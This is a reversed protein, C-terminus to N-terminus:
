CSWGFSLVCTDVGFGDVVATTCNSRFYRDSSGWGYTRTFLPRLKRIVLHLVRHCHFRGFLGLSLKESSLLM